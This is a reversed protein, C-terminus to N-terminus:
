LLISIMNTLKMVDCSLVEVQQKTQKILITNDSVQLLDEKASRLAIAMQVPKSVYHFCQM